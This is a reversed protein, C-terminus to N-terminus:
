IYVVQTEKSVIQLVESWRLILSFWGSILVVPRLNTRKPPISLVSLIKSKDSLTHYRISIECDEAFYPQWYDESTMDFDSDDANDNNSQSLANVM